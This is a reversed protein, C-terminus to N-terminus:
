PSFLYRLLHKMLHLLLQEQQLLLHMHLLLVPFSSLTLLPLLSRRPLLVLALTLQGLLHLGHCRLKLLQLSIVLAFPSPPLAFPLTPAFSFSPTFPPSSLPLSLPVLSRLLRVLLRTPQLPLLLRSHLLLFLLLWRWRRRLLLLLPLCLLLLLLLLLM